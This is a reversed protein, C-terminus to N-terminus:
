HLDVRVDYFSPADEPTLVIPTQDKTFPVSRSRGTSNGDALEFVLQYDGTPIECGELDTLDWTVDHTIHAVLTASTIADVINNNSSAIFRTLYKARLQGWREITKVFAGDAREVWIAGVNRPAFRGGASTTRVTIALASLPSPDATMCVPETSADPAFLESPPVIADELDDKNM